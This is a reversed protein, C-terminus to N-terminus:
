EERTDDFRYSATYVGEDYETKAKKAARTFVHLARKNQELVEAKFGGFNHSRAIQEEGTKDLSAVTAMQEEDDM